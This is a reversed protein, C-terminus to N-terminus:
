DYKTKDNMPRKVCYKSNFYLHLYSTWPSSGNDRSWFRFHRIATKRSNSLTNGAKNGLFNVLVFVLFYHSKCSINVTSMFEWEFLNYNGSGFKTKSIDSFERFIELFGTEETRLFFGFKMIFLKMEKTRSAFNLCM